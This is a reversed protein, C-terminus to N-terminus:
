RWATWGNSRRCCPEPLQVAAARDAAGAIASVSVKRHTVKTNVSRIGDVDAVAARVAAAVGRRTYASDIGPVGGTLSLRSVRPRKLEAVLLVLGALVLLM